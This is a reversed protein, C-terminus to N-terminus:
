NVGISQLFTEANGSFVDDLVDDAFGQERWEEVLREHRLMPYDAGFFVGAVDELQFLAEALPSATAQDITLFERVGAPAVDRGPLFKLTNPNPTPETQIFM